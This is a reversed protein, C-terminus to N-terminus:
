LSRMTAMSRVGAAVKIEHYDNFGVETSTPSGLYLRTSSEWEPPLDLANDGGLEETGSNISQGIQISDGDLVFRLEVTDGISSQSTLLTTQSSTGNHLFGRYLASNSNYVIARRTSAGVTGPAVYLVVLLADALVTGRETLKVYLTSAQPSHPWSFYLADANRTVTAGATPIYSTPFELDEAQVGWVRIDGTQASVEAPRIQLRNTNAEVLTTTQFHLRYWGDDLTETLLLTGTTMSVSPAANSWTINADLRDAPASTDRLRIQSGGAASTDGEKVYLSVAGEDDVTFNPDLFFEEVSAGDDDGLLYATSGGEPDSETGSSTPTGTESWNSFDESYTILNTSAGELKLARDGGAYQGDRATDAAATQVVGNVDVYTATGTRAFTADALSGGAQYRFLVGEGAYAGSFVWEPFRSGDTRRLLLPTQYERFATEPDFQALWAQSANALKVDVTREPYDLDLYTITQGDMAAELLDALSAAGRDARVLASIEYASGLVVTEQSSFDVAVATFARTRVGPQVRQLPLRLAHERSTGTHGTDTWTLAMNGKLKEPMM